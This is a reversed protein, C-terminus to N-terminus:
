FRQSIGALVQIKSPNRKEARFDLGAELQLDVWDSLSNPSGNVYTM